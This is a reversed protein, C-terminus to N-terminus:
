PLHYDYGVLVVAVPGKEQGVFLGTEEVAPAHHGGRGSQAHEAGTKMTEAKRNKKQREAL